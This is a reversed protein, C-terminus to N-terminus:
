SGSMERSFRMDDRDFLISDVDQEDVEKQVIKQVTSRPSQDGGENDYNPYVTVHIAEMMSYGDRIQEAMQVTQRTSIIRNLQPQAQRVEMRTEDAIRALTDLKEDPVSPYLTQLLDFEEDRELIDMEITTFREELARDMKRTSTYQTGINATSMFCVGDAVSVKEQESAEDVQLYRQKPDLVTLLINWAEPHARSIEDLLVMSNESQIVSVFPAPKFYTTGDESERTGVLTTRPDQTSGLNMYHFPRKLAKRVEMVAMTNHTVIFDETLYLQDDSEVQICVAEKEGVSEVSDFARRPFYKTRDSVRESKRELQFPQIENPLSVTIVYATKGERKEGDYTYSKNKEKKTFTGGFSNVLWGVQDALEESVSTFTIRGRKDVYGDADMLGQFLALRNEFSNYMYDDPVFKTHSHSNHLGVSKMEEMIPNAFGNNGTSIRYGTGQSERSHPIEKVDAMGEVSEAVKNYVSRDATTFTVTQNRISGDGILIGMTYPDISTEREEFEVSDAMPIYWKRGGQSKVVGNKMDMLEELSKTVWSDEEGLSQYYQVNWLHEGCCEVSSGDTFEVNYIEKEGQPYVGTVKTPTGDKGIVEDGVDIEGIEKEGEPTMVKTDVPHAKGTGSPGVFMLNKGRLASRIAHKWKVDSLKFYPPKLDVARNQLFDRMESPNEPTEVMESTDVDAYGVRDLM